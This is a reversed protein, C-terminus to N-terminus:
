ASLARRAPGAGGYRRWHRGGRWRAGGAPQAARARDTQVRRIRVTAYFLLVRGLFFAVAPTACVQCATTYNQTAPELQAPRQEVTASEASYSGHAGLIVNGDPM